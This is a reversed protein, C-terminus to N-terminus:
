ISVEYVTVTEHQESSPQGDTIVWREGEIGSSIWQMEWSRPTEGASLRYAVTLLADIEQRLKRDAIEDLAGSRVKTIAQGLERLRAKQEESIEDLRM